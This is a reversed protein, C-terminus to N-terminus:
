RRHCLSKRLPTPHPNFAGGVSLKHPPHLLLAQYTCHRRCCLQSTLALCLLQQEMGQPLQVLGLACPASPWSSGMGTQLLSGGPQTPVYEQLPTFFSLTVTRDPWCSVMLQRALGESSSCHRLRPSLSPSGKRGAQCLIAIRLQLWAAEQVQEAELLNHKVLTPFAWPSVASPHPGQGLVLLGLQGELYECVAPNSM